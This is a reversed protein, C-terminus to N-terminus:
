APICVGVNEPATDLDNCTEAEECDEDGNNRDCIKACEGDGVCLHGPACDNNASCAEGVGAAPSSTELCYGSAQSGRTLLYCGVGEGQCDQMVLDCGTQPVCVGYPSATNEEGGSTYNVLCFADAPCVMHSDADSPDYCCYQLCMENYCVLGPGCDFDMTCSESQAKTGAQRCAVTVDEGEEQFIRCQQDEACASGNLIGCADTAVCQQAPDVAIASDDGSDVGADTMTMPDDDDSCSCGVSWLALCGVLLARTGVKQSVRGKIM